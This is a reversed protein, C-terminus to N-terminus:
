HYRKHEPLVELVMRITARLHRGLKPARQGARLNKLELQLRRCSRYNNKPAGINSLIRYVSRSIAVTVLFWELHQM